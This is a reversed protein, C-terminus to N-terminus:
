NLSFSSLYFLGSFLFGITIGVLWGLVSWLVFKSLRSANKYKEFFQVTMPIFYRVLSSENLMQIAYGWFNNELRNFFRKSAVM